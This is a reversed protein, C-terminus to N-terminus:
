EEASFLDSLKMALGMNGSIAVKRFPGPMVATIPNLEGTTLDIWHQPKTRIEADHGDIAGDMSDARGNEVHLSWQGGGDGEMTFLYKAAVDGGKDPRYILPMYHFIRGMHYNVQEPNSIEIWHPLKKKNVKRIEQYQGPLFLYSGFFLDRVTGPRDWAPSNAPKDLDAENLGELMSIHEGFTSQMRQILEPVPLDRLKKMTAARFPIMDSRKEFGPVNPPEGALAQQTLPISEKAHTAAIFALHEKATWEDSAKKAWEKDDLKGFADVCRELATKYMQVMQEKTATM